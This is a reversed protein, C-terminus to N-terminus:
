KLKDVSHTVQSSYLCHSRLSSQQYPLLYEIKTEPPAKMTKTMDSARLNDWTERGKVQLDSTGRQTVSLVTLFMLLLFSTSSNMLHSIRCLDLLIHSPWVLTWPKLIGNLICIWPFPVWKLLKSDMAKLIEQPFDHWESGVQKM